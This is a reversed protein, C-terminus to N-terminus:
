SNMLHPSANGLHYAGSMIAMLVIFVDGPTKIVGISHLFTGYLIATGMFVMVLSILIGSLAGTYVAKRVGSKVGKELEQKYRNVETEQANFAAVTRYATISEEAICGASSYIKMEDRSAQTIKRSSFAMAFTIIPSFALLPLTMQWSFFLAVIIGTVYQVMNRTLLGLKDGIGEYIRDINDNLKTNLAGSHNKEFWAPNQRLISLLYANRIRRTIRTCAINFCCFQIFAITVLITGIVVFLICSQTGEAFFRPDDIEILLLTNALRGSLIAFLPQCIGCMAALLLGFIVLITDLRSGYKFLDWFRVPKESLKQNVLDKRCLLINLFKEMNTKEYPQDPQDNDEEALEAMKKKFSDGISDEDVDFTIHQRKDPNPVDIAVEHFEEEAGADPLRKVNKLNQSGLKEGPTPPTVRITMTTTDENQRPPKQPISEQDISKRPGGLFNQPRPTADRRKRKMHRFSTKRKGGLDMKDSSEDGDDSSGSYGESLNASNFHEVNELAEAVLQKALIEEETTSGESAAEFKVNTVTEKSINKQDLKENRNENDNKSEDPARANIDEKQNDRRIDGNSKSYIKTKDEDSDSETKEREPNFVTDEKEVVENIKEVNILVDPLGPVFIESQLVGDNTDNENRKPTDAKEVDVTNLNETAIKDISKDTSTELIDKNFKDDGSGDNNKGDKLEVITDDSTEDSITKISGEENKDNDNDNDYDINIEESINEWEEQSNKRDSLKQDKSDGGIAAAANQNGKDNKDKVKLKEIDVTDM